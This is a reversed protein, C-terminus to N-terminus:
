TRRLVTKGDRDLRLTEGPRNEGDRIVIAAFDLNEGSIIAESVMDGLGAEADRVAADLDPFEGGIPDHEVVEGSTSILDFYFLPM